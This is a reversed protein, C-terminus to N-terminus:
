ILHTVVPTCCRVVCTFLIGQPLWRFFDYVAHYIYICIHTNNTKNEVSTYKLHYSICVCIYIWKFIIKISLFWNYISIFFYIYIYIYIWYIETGGICEGYAEVCDAGGERMTPMSFHAHPPYPSTLMPLAHAPMFLYPSLIPSCEPSYPTPYTRLFTPSVAPTTHRPYPFYPHAHPSQFSYPTLMPLTHLLSCPSLIPSCSSTHPGWEWIWVGYEGGELRDGRLCCALMPLHAVQHYHWSGARPMVRPRVEPCFRFPTSIYFSVYVHAHVCIRNLNVSGGGRSVEYMDLPAM